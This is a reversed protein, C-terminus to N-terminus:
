CEKGVRREESRDFTIAFTFLIEKGSINFENSTSLKIEGFLMAALLM